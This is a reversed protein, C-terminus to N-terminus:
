IAGYVHDPIFAFYNKEAQRHNMKCSGSVSSFHQDVYRTGEGAM